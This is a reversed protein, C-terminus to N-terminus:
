IVNCKDNSACSVPFNGNQAQRGSFVVAASHFLTIAENVRYAELASSAPKQCTDKESRQKPWASYKRLQEVSLVSPLWRFRQRARIRRHVCDDLRDADRCRCDAALCRLSSRLKM